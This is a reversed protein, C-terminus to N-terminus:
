RVARFTSAFPAVHAHVSGTSRPPLHALPCAAVCGASSYQVYFPRPSPRMATTHLANNHRSTMKPHRFRVVVRVPGIELRAKEKAQIVCSLNHWLLIFAWSFSEM